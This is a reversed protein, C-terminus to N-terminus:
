PVRGLAAALLAKSRQYRRMLGPVSKAHQPLVRALRDPDSNHCNDFYKVLMAGHHGSTIINRIYSLYTWGSWMDRTLLMLGSVVYNSYHRNRFFELCAMPNGPDFVLGMSQMMMIIRPRCDEIADHLLALHRDDECVDPPLAQM